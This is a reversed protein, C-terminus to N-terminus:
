GALDTAPPGGELAAPHRLVASSAGRMGFRGYYSVLPADCVLDVSYLRGSGDLIRRM